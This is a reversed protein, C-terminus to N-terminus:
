LRTRVFQIGGAVGRSLFWAQLCCATGSLKLHQSRDSFLAKREPGEGLITLTWKESALEPWEVLADLLYTSVRKPCSDDQRSCGFLSRVARRSKAARFSTLTGVATRAADLSDKERVRRQTWFEGAFHCICARRRTAPSFAGRRLSKRRWCNLRSLCMGRMFWLHDGAAIEFGGGGAM